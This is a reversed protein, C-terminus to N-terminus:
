FKYGGILRFGTIDEEHDIDAIQYQLNVYTGSAHSYSVGLDYTKQFDQGEGTSAKSYQSDLATYVHKLNISMGKLGVKSLDYGAAVQYNAANQFSGANFWHVISGMAFFPYGGFAAVTSGQGEGDSFKMAALNFNIGNDFTGAFKASMIDYNITTNNNSALNGTEDFKIYQLGLDYAFGDTKNNFNYQTFLVNYLERFNYGWVQVKHTDDNFVFGAYLAGADDAAVKDTGSVFSSQSMSYFDTGGLDAKIPDYAGSDWVGSMKDVYGFTFMMNEIMTNTYHAVEFSNPIALYFNDNSIMPTDIEERGIKIENGSNSYKLYAEQLISFSKPNAANFVFNKSQKNEDNNGFDTAFGATAKASFGGAEPTNISIRPTAYFGQSNNANSYDYDVFGARIDGTISWGNGFENWKKSSEEEAAVLTSSGLGILLGTLLSLRYVSKIM